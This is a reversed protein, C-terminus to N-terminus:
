KHRSHRERLASDRKLPSEKRRQAKARFSNEIVLCREDRPM